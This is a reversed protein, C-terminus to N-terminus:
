SCRLIQIVMKGNTFTVELNDTILIKQFLSKMIKSYLM